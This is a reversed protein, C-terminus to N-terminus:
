GSKEVNRNNEQQKKLEKEYEKIDSQEEEICLRDIQINIDNLILKIICPPLQTNNIAKIIEKKSDRIILSTPKM